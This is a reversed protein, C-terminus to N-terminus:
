QGPAPTCGGPIPSNALYSMDNVMIMQTNTANDHSGGIPLFGASAWSNYASMFNSMANVVLPPTMGGTASTSYPSRTFAGATAAFVAGMAAANSVSLTQGSSPGFNLSGRWVQEIYFFSADRSLIQNAQLSGGALLGLISNKLLYGNTSANPVQNTWLRDVSYSGQDTSQYNQLTVHVFLPDLDIRQVVLDNGRNNWSAPWGPPPTSSQDSWNWLNSFVIPSPTGTTVFSPLPTSLSSVIMVRLSPPNTPINNNGQDYPLLLSANPDILFCRPLNRANNTVSATNVGLEMAINTAWDWNNTGPIYRNRLISAQLAAAYRVQTTSELNAAAIDLRRTTTSVIITALIAVIALVGIMEILTFARCVPAHGPPRMQVSGGSRPRDGDAAPTFPILPQSNEAHKQQGLRQSGPHSASRKHMEAIM